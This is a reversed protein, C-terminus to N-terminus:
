VEPAPEMEKEEELNLMKDGDPMNSKGIFIAGSRINLDKTTISGFVKGTPLIELKGTAIISGDIQGAVQITEATVPGKIYATESVIITKDSKVEGEIKGHMIIENADYLTGVIKVNTGIVTGPGSANKDMM